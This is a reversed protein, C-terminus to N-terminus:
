CLQADVSGDYEICALGPSYVLPMCLLEVSEMEVTEALQESYFPLVFDRIRIDKISIGPMGLTKVM